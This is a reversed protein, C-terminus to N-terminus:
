DGSRRGVRPVHTMAALVGVSLGERALLGTANRAATRALIAGAVIGLVWLLLAWRALSIGLGARSGTQALFFLVTWLALFLASSSLSLALLPAILRGAPLQHRHRRILRADHRAYIMGRSLDAGNRFAFALVIVAAITGIDPAAAGGFLVYLGLGLGLLTVALKTRRLVREARSRVAATKPRSPQGAGTLRGAIRGAQRLLIWGLGMAANLLLLPTLLALIVLDRM